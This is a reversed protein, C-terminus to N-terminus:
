DTFHFTGRTRIPNQKTFRTLLKQLEWILSECDDFDTLLFPGKILDVEGLSTLYFHVM